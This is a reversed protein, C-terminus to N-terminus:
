SFRAGARTLALWVVAMLLVFGLITPAFWALAVMAAVLAMWLLARSAVRRWRRWRWAM